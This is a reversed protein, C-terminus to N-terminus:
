LILVVQSQLRYPILSVREGGNSASTPADIGPVIGKGGQEIFSMKDPSSSDELSNSRSFDISFITPARPSPTGAQSTTANSRRGRSL